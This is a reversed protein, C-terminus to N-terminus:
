GRPAFGMWRAGLQEVRRPREEDELRPLQAWPELQQFRGEPLHLPHNRSAM